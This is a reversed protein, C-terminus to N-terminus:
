QVNKLEETARHIESHAYKLSVVTKTLDPTPSRGFAAAQLRDLAYFMDLILVRTQAAPSKTQDTTM